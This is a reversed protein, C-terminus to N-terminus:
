NALTQSVVLIMSRFDIGQNRSLHTGPDHLEEEIMIHGSFNAPDETLFAMLHGFESLHQRHIGIVGLRKTVGAFVAQKQYGAVPVVEQCQCGIM